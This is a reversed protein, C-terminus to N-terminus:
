LKCVFYRMIHDIGRRGFGVWVRSKGGSIICVVSQCQPNPHIPLMCFLKRRPPLHCSFSPFSLTALFVPFRVLGPSSFRPQPSIYPRRVITPNPLRPRPRPYLIFVATHFPFFRAVPSSPDNSSPSLHIIRTSSSFGQINSPRSASPRVFPDGDTEASSAAM